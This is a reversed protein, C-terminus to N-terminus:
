RRGALRLVSTSAGFGSLEDPCTWGSTESLAAYGGHIVVHGDLVATDGRELTATSGGVTARLGRSEWAGCRSDYTALVDGTELAVHAPTDHHEPTAHRGMWLVAGADNGVELQGRPIEDRDAPFYVRYAVEIPGESVPFASLSPHSIAVVHDGQVPDEVVAWYTEVPDAQDSSWLAWGGDNWCTEAPDGMGSAGVTGSLRLTDQNVAAYAAAETQWPPIPMVCAAVPPVPALDGPLTEEGPACAVVLLISLASRPM